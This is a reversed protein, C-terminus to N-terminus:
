FIGKNFNQVEELRWHKHILFTTNTKNNTPEKINQFIIHEFIKKDWILKLPNEKPLWLRLSLCKDIYRVMHYESGGLSQQNATKRHGIVLCCFLVM